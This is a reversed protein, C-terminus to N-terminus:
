QNVAHDLQLVATAVKGEILGSTVTTTGHTDTTSVVTNYPMDTSYFWGTETTADDVVQGDTTIYHVTGSTPIVHMNKVPRHGSDVVEGIVIGADPVRDFGAPGLIASLTADSLFWSRITTDVDGAPVCTISPTSGSLEFDTEICALTVYQITVDGQFTAVDTRALAQRGAGPQLVAGNDSLIQPEGTYVDLNTGTHEDIPIGLDFDLVETTVHTTPQGSCVLSSKDVCGLTVITVADGANYYARGGIAIGSAGGLPINSGETYQVNTPCEGDVLASKPFVAVQVELTSEPLPTDPLDIGAIPCLTGDSIVPECLSIYPVNPDEPDFIRISLVADCTMTVGNCDTAGCSDDSPLQFELKLPPTGCAALVLVFALRKM